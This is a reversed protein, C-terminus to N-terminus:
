GIEAALQRAAAMSEDSLVTLAVHDAGATRLQTARAVIDAPTGWAVLADVLHDSITEVDRTSFGQRALSRSYAPLRTLFELPRRAVRRASRATTDLVAFLGVALTADPGLASRASATEANTVLMPMAGAFESSAIQLARPGHAALLRRDKPVATLQDLYPGLRSLPRSKQSTGLGVLLRGPSAAEAHRYLHAVEAPEYVDPTIIASGVAATGTAQLLQTLRDLRDLQGGRIWLTGFGLAELEAADSLYSEGDRVDVTFGWRGLRMSSM